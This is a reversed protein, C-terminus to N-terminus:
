TNKRINSHINKRRTIKSDAQEKVLKFLTDLIQQPVAVKMDQKLQELFDGLDFREDGLTFMEPSDKKGGYIHFADM